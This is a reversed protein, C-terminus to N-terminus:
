SEEAGQSFRSEDDFQFDPTKGSILSGAIYISKKESEKHNKIM